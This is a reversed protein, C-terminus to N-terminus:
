KLSTLHDPDMKLCYATAGTWQQWAVVRKDIQLNDFCNISTSILKGNAIIDLSNIAFHLQLKGFQRLLLKNYEMVSKVSEFSVSAGAYWTNQKGQIDFVKWHNGNAVQEPTWKFFYPWNITELIEINTSNFGNEYHNKLIGNSEEITTMNRRLQLAFLVKEASNTEDYQSMNLSCGRDCYNLVGEIDLDANVDGDLKEDLTERYVSYPKNLITNKAKFLTSVFVHASLPNFLEFEDTSTEDLYNLLEPMPPTWILFNCKEIQHDSYRDEYEIRIDNGNRYITKITSNFRIDFKEERVITNFINEWGDRIVYSRHPDQHIGLARLGISILFNPTVWILGYLAGVEDLYGYGAGVHIRNFVPILTTLGERELFSKLTVNLLSLTTENPRMMLEGDYRGFLSHHINAYKIISGIFIELNDHISISNTIQILSKFLYESYTLKNQLEFGDNEFWVEFTSLSNNANQSDRFPAQIIYLIITGRDFYPM